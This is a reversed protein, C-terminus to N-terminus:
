CAHSALEFRTLEREPCAQWAKKANAAGGTRSRVSPFV